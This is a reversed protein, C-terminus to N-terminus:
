KSKQLSPHIIEMDLITIANADYDLLGEKRMNNLERSLSPRQIGFREAMEKKSMNLKIKTTKQIHYEYILFDIIRQRITKLAITNIKDTLTLTKDSITSILSTLFHTNSQCLELVFERHIHLITSNEKSVVTMPYQNRSSFLLNAGIIEGSSFTSITLINGNKDIKQVLTQGILIVDMTHCIENQFHIVEGKGYKKIFYKQNSFLKNIDDKGLGRFLDMNAVIDTYKNINM